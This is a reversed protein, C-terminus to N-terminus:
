GTLRKTPANGPSRHGGWRCKGLAIFCEKAVRRADEFEAIVREDTEHQILKYLDYHIFHLQNRWEAIKEEKTM